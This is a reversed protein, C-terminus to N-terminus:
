PPRSLAASASNGFPSAAILKMDEARRERISRSAFNRQTETGSGWWASTTWLGFFPTIPPALRQVSVARLRVGASYRPTASNKRKM